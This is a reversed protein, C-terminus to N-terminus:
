TQASNKNAVHASKIFYERVGKELSRHYDYLAKTFITSAVTLMIMMIFVTLSAKGVIFAILAVITLFMSAVLMLLTLRRDNKVMNDLGGLTSIRSMLHRNLGDVSVVNRKKLFRFYSNDFDEPYRGNEVVNNLLAELPDNAKRSIIAWMILAIALPAVLIVSIITLITM